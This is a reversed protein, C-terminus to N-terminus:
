FRRLKFAQKFLTNACNQKTIIVMASNKCWFYHHAKDFDHDIEEQMPNMRHAKWQSTCFQLKGDTASFAFSFVAREAIGHLLRFIFSLLFSWLM